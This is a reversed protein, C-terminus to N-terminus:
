FNTNARIIAAKARDSLTLKFRIGNENTVGRYIDTVYWGDEARLIVVHTVTETGDGYDFNSRAYWDIDASVGVMDWDPIRLRDEIDMIANAITGLGMSRHEPHGEAEDILSNITAANKNDMLIAKM